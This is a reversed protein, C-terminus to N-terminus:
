EYKQDNKIPQSLLSDKVKGWTLLMIPDQGSAYVHFGYVHVLALVPITMMM